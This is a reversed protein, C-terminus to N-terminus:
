KVELAWTLIKRVHDFQLYPHALILRLFSGFSDRSFNVMALDHDKLQERVNRSWDPDTTQNPPLIRVCINLYDPPSVLRLRPEGRIWNLTEERIGLLRDVFDGLGETGLSKWITWFSVADASRGCQWSMKGRDVGADGSHFLYDGGSVDNAELLIDSRKTLFFSSTLSAGFLKHADFSVSDVLALGQVLHQLKKSFLAPGGWAADVHLWVEHKRCVTALATIADFAGLVTTGATAAVMIPLEGKAVSQAILQDLDEAKMRGREDTPVLVLNETGIGLVACAKKFSYHAEVSAFVKLVSGRAGRKKAGPLVKQRACHIAMFNAASGGPVSVGGSEGLNWGIKQCLASVVELEITSLAPSAEFTALTTKTRAIFDEALLMQPLIGSFLQNMFYPSHTSVSHERIKTLLSKLGDMRTPESLAIDIKLRDLSLARFNNQDGLELIKPTYVHLTRGQPTKCRMEHQAGVPTSMVQGKELLQCEVKVGLDLRNEFVGEEILVFCQSWGHNHLAPNKQDTWEISVVEFEETQFLITREM